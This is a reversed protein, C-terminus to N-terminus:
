NAIQIEMFLSTSLGDALAASITMLRSQTSRTLPGIDTVEYRLHLLGSQGEGRIWPNVFLSRRAKEELLTLTNSDRFWPNTPLNTFVEPGRWLSRAQNWSEQFSGVKCTRVGALFMQGNNIALTPPISGAFTSTMEPKTTSYSQELWPSVGLLDQTILNDRSSLGIGQVVVAAAATDSLSTDNADGIVISTEGELRFPSPLIVDLISDIMPWAGAYMDVGDTPNYTRTSFPNVNDGIGSDLVFSAQVPNLAQLDNALNSLGAGATPDFVSGTASVAGGNLPGLTMLEGSIRAGWRDSGGISFVGSACGETSEVRGEAADYVYTTSGLIQAGENSMGSTVANDAVSDLMYASVRRQPATIENPATNVDEITMMWTHVAIPERAYPHPLFFNTIKPVIGTGKWRYNGAGICNIRNIDWYHKVFFTSELNKPDADTEALMKGDPIIVSGFTGSMDIIADRRGTSVSTWDVGFAIRTARTRHHLTKKVRTNNYPPTFAALGRVFGHIPHQNEWGTLADTSSMESVAVDYMYSLKGPTTLEEALTNHPQTYGEDKIVHMPVYSGNSDSTGPWVSLNSAIIMPVNPGSVGSAQLLGPLYQTYRGADWSGVFRNPLADIRVTAGFPNVFAMSSTNEVTDWNGARTVLCTDTLGGQPFLESWTCNALLPGDQEPRGPRTINFGLSIPALYGDRVGSVVMGTLVSNTDRLSASRLNPLSKLGRQTRMMLIRLDNPLADTLYVLFKVWNLATANAVTSMDLTGNPLSVMGARSENEATSIETFSNGDVSFKAIKTGCLTNITTKSVPSISALPGSDYGHRNANSVVVANIQAGVSGYPELALTDLLVCLSSPSLVDVSEDVFIAEILDGVTYYQNASNSMDDQQYMETTLKSLNMARVHIAAANDSASLTGDIQVPIAGRSEVLDLQFKEEAIGAKSQLALDIRSELYPRCIKFAAPNRLIKAWPNRMSDFAGASLVAMSAGTGPTTGIGMTQSLQKQATDFGHFDVSKLYPTMLGVVTNYIRGIDIRDYEPYNIETGYIDGTAILFETIAGDSYRVDRYEDVQDVTASEITKQALMAKQALISYEKWFGALQPGLSTMAQLGAFHRTYAVSPLDNRFTGLASAVGLLSTPDLDQLMVGGTYLPNNQGRPAADPNDFSSAMMWSLGRGSDSFHKGRVKAAILANFATLPGVSINVNSIENMKMM